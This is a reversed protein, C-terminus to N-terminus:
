AHADVLEAVRAHNAQRGIAFPLWGTACPRVTRRVRCGRGDVVRGITTM